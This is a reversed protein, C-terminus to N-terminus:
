KLLLKLKNFQEPSFEESYILRNEQSEQEKKGKKTVEVWYSMVEIFHTKECPCTAHIVDLREDKDTWAEKDPLLKLKNFREEDGELLGMLLDKLNHISVRAIVTEELYNKCEECFKQAGIEASAILPAIVLNFVVILGKVIWGMTGEMLDPSLSDGCLCDRVNWYDFAAEIIIDEVYFFTVGAAILAWFVSVIAAQSPRRSRAWKGAWGISLGIFVAVLVPCFYYVIVGPYYLWILCRGVEEFIKFVGVALYFAIVAAIIGLLTGGLGAILFKPTAGPETAGSPIYATEVADPIRETSTKIAEIRQQHQEKHVENRFIRSGFIDM